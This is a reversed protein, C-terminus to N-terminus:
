SFLLRRALTFQGLRGSEMVWKALKAAGERTGILRQFDLQGNASQLVDKHDAELRCFLVM